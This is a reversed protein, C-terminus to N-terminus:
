KPSSHQQHHSSVQDLLNGDKDRWEGDEALIDLSYRRNGLKRWADRELEGILWGFNDTDLWGHEEELVGLFYVFGESPASALIREGQTVRSQSLRYMKTDIM